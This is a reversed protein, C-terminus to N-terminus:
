VLDVTKRLTLEAEIRAALKADIGYLLAAAASLVGIVSPAFSMLQKIGDLTAPTQEVNARYGYFGLLWGAVASGLAWGSKQSFTGASFILGTFRRGFRWEAYDATDAIMSWFLPMLPGTLLSALVHVAFLLALNQPGVFYFGIGVVSTAVSLVVYAWKKGGLHREALKTFAVGGLTALTGATLFSTILDEGARVYYKMFYMVAANRLSVWVLTLIGIGCIALWPRNKLLQALDKRVDTDQDKPAPVRERTSKFTIFFLAGALLAYLLMTRQFGRAEDGGGFLKVLKLMTLNVFFVAVYAGYFRFSALVTREESHPTMVGMLAGYPINILTYVISVAVYTVYAYILKNGQSLDPVTFTLVGLTVYPVIGWLLWPRFKGHRSRTRDAVLGVIPDDIADCLRTVLFMTGVAAATLGFVDTYFYLL